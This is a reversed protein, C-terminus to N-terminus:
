RLFQLWGFQILGLKVFFKLAVLVGIVIVLGRLLSPRLKGAIRGGVNGGLLACVAMVAAMGWHVHGSFVFFLAAVVNSVLSLAQKLANVSNLSDHLILGLVALLMIGLGAGFYGGYVTALFVGVYLPLKSPEAGETKGGMMKSLKAKLPEQIALLGCAVL